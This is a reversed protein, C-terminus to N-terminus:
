ICSGPQQQGNAIGKVNSCSSAVAGEAGHYALNINNLEIKECPKGKSCDSAVAIKSSSTGRINGYKVDRIQVQSDGKECNRSPCYQQDIIIPNNVNDMIIDEFTLNFVNSAYSGHKMATLGSVDEENPGGGLSGVSIGHGPGCTVNRININKSSPSMSVCDDGTAITSDLIQINSSSGIHIGDTNPSDKPAIIHVHDFKMDQGDLKGGGSLVLRDVYQFTIWHNIDITSTEDILAKLTGIINQFVKNNDTNGDAIAGYKMVNFVMKVFGTEFICAKVNSCSSAVAGEAGHYNLNINNLEINECPKGKSCDFAVAIKSSSTGRINGYKVDRIQVQSEGKECNRSPCYQQDIIIPNNVNDMIIDEFTLNFVSSAYSRAWTKVRLGNQTGIFTCNTVTLGSVDEENPGGGLSGVSIGHGPGCTVNRININKSGPSMSVCDDGTAITSDLIQINSSSGIHIGDTNPSDKPAIIHIHDFKMDKCAFVNMHANKSNM